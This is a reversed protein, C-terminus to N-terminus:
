GPLWRFTWRAANGLARHLSRERPHRRYAAPPGSAASRRGTHADGTWSVQRTIAPTPRGWATGPLFCPQLDPARIQRRTAGPIAPLATRNFGSLMLSPSSRSDFFCLFLPRPQPLRHSGTGSASRSPTSIPSLLLSLFSPRSDFFYLLAASFLPLSGTGSARLERDEVAGVKLHDGGQLRDREEGRRQDGRSQRGVPRQVTVVSNPIVTM